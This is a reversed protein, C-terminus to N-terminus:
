IDSVAEIDRALAWKCKAQKGAKTDYMLMVWCEDERQQNIWYWKQHANHHLYYVEGVRDPLVRDAAVLDDPNVHRFDCVALPRDEIVPHLPRWTSRVTVTLM